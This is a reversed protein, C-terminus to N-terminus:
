YNNNYTNIIYGDCVAVGNLAFAATNDVEAFALSVINKDVNKYYVIIVGDQNSTKIIDFWPYVSGNTTPRIKSYDEGFDVTCIEGCLTLEVTQQSFVTISAFTLLLLLLNKM